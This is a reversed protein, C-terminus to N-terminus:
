TLKLEQFPTETPYWFRTIWFWQVFGLLFLVITTLYAGELSLPNMELVYWAFFVVAGGFLGCPLSLLLMLGNLALLTNLLNPSENGFWSYILLGLSLIAVVSWIRKLNTKINM